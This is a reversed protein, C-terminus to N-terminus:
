FIPLNFFKLIPQRIGSVYWTSLLLIIFILAAITEKTRFRLLYILTPHKDIHERLTDVSRTLAAINASQEKILDNLKAINTTFLQHHDATRERNDITIAILLQRAVLPDIDPNNLLKSAATSFEHNNM